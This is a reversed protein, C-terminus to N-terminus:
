NRKLKLLLQWVDGTQLDPRNKGYKSLKLRINFPTDVSFTFKTKNTCAEPLDVIVGIFVLGNLLPPKHRKFLVLIVLFECLTVAWESNLIEHINKFSFVSIGLLFSQANILM